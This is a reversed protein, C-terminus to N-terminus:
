VIHHTQGRGICLSFVQHVSGGKGAHLLASKEDICRTAVQHVICGQEVREVAAVQRTGRQIDATRRVLHGAKRQGRM